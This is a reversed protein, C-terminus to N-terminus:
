KFLRKLELAFRGTPDAPILVLVFFRSVEQVVSEGDPLFRQPFVVWGHGGGEVVEGHEIPLPSFVLLRLREALSRQLDSLLRTDMYM